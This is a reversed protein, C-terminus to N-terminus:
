RIKSVDLSNLLDIEDQLMFELLPIMNMKIQEADITKSVIHYNHITQHMKDFELNKFAQNIGTNTILEIFKKNLEEFNTYPRRSYASGFHGSNKFFFAGAKTNEVVYKLVCEYTVRAMAVKANPMKSSDLEFYEDIRSKLGPPFKKRKIEPFKKITGRKIVIPTTFSALTAIPSLLSADPKVINPPTITNVATSILDPATAEEPGGIGDVEPPVTSAASTNTLPQVDTQNMDFGYEILKNIFNKDNDIDSTKIGPFANIYKVLAIIYAKFKKSDTIEINFTPSNKFKYGCLKADRFLREYIITKGGTKGRGRRIQKRFEDKGYKVAEKYFSGLKIFDGPRSDLMNMEDSKGTNFLDLIQLAKAIREWSRFLSAAHEEGIRSKLEEEDTYEYVPLKEFSTKALSLKFKGPMQLAKVAACRRNGDRVIYKGDSNKIVWLAKDEYFENRTAISKAIEEAAEEFLLYEILDEEDKSGYYLEGFRPNNIDLKLDELNVYNLVSRKQM